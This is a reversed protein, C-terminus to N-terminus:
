IILGINITQEFNKFSEKAAFCTAHIKLNKHYNISAFICSFIYKHLSITNQM